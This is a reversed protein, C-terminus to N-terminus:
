LLRLTPLSPESVVVCILTAALGKSDRVAVM